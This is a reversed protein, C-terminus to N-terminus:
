LRTGLRPPPLSLAGPVCQKRMLIIIPFDVHYFSPRTSIHRDVTIVHIAYVTVFFVEAKKTLVSHVNSSCARGLKIGDSVFVFTHYVTTPILKGSITSLQIFAHKRLLCM